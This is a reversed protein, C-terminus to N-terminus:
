ILPKGCRPCSQTLANHLRDYVELSFGCQTCFRAKRSKSRKYNSSSSGGGHANNSDFNDSLMFIFLVVILILFVCIIADKVSLQQVGMLSPVLLLVSYLFLLIAVIALPIRAVGGLTPALSLFLMSGFLMILLPTEIVLVSYLQVCYRGQGKQMHALIHAAGALAIILLPVGLTLTIVLGRELPHPTLTPVNLNQIGSNLTAVRGM